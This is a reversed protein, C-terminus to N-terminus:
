KDNPVGVKIMTLKNCNDCIFVNFLKKTVEKNVVNILHYLRGKKCKNCVKM